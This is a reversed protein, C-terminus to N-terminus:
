IIDVTGTASANECFIGELSASIIDSYNGAPSDDPGLCPKVLYIHGITNNNGDVFRIVVRWFWSPSIFITTVRNIRWFRSPNNCSWSGTPHIEPVNWNCFGIDKQLLFDGDPPLLNCPGFDNECFVVLDNAVGIFASPYDEDACLSSCPEVKPCETNACVTGRGQPTGGQALCEAPTLDRCSGDLECCAEIGGCCEACTDYQESVDEIVAMLEPDFECVVQSNPGVTLCLGNGRFIIDETVLHAPVVYIRGAPPTPGVVPGGAGLSPPEQQCPCLSAVLWRCCAHHHSAM